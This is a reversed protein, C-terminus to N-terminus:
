EKIIDIIVDFDDFHYEECQNTIKHSKANSYLWVTIDSFPNSEYDEENIEIFLTMPKNSCGCGKVAIHYDINGYDEVYNNCIREWVTNFDLM